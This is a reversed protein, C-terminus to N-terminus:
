RQRKYVDAYIINPNKQRISEYDIGLRKTVGPRFSEIIIDAKKSLEQFCDNAEKNKLDLSISKKNRCLATSYYSIGYIHILSLGLTTSSKMSNM